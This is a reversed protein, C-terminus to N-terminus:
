LLLRFYSDSMLRVHILWVTLDLTEVTYDGHGRGRGINIREIACFDPNTRQAPVFCDPPVPFLEPPSHQFLMFVIYLSLM